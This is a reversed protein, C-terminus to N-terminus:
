PTEDKEKSIIGSGGVIIFIIGVILITLPVKCSIQPIFTLGLFFGMLLVGLTYLSFFM